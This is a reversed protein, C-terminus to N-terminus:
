HYDKMGKNKNQLNKIENIVLKGEFELRVYFQLDRVIHLRSCALDVFERYAACTWDSPLNSITIWEASPSEHLVTLWNSKGSAAEAVSKGSVADPLLVTSKHTIQELNDNNTLKFDPKIECDKNNVEEDFNSHSSQHDNSPQDNFAV